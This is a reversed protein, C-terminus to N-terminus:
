QLVGNVVEITIDTTTLDGIRNWTDGSFTGHEAIDNPDKYLAAGSTATNALGTGASSGYVTGSIIYFTAIGNVDGSIYVGGGYSNPTNGSMEGSRMIFMAGGSLSVGGGNMTATNGSVKASGSM